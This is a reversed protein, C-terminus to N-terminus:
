IDLQLKVSFGNLTLNGRASTEAQWQYTDVDTTHGFFRKMNFQDFWEHFEYAAALGIRYKNKNFYKNWAIGLQIEFNPVNQYSDYDVDYGQNLDGAGLAINQDVEFKGFLMSGAVNGFL